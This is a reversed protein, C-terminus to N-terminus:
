MCLLHWNKLCKHNPPTLIVFATLVVIYLISFDVPFGWKNYVICKNQKLWNRSGWLLQLLLADFVTRWDPGVEANPGLSDRESDQPELECMTKVHFILTVIDSCPICGLLVNWVPALLPVTPDPLAPEVATKLSMIRWAQVIARPYVWGRVSPRGTYLASLRVVKM